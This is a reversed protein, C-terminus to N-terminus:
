IERRSAVDLTGEAQTLLRDFEPNSYKSENWPGGSRYALALSMIGLPRHAWTTFGFPVKTWVEWYQTSPMVNIKVRIGAEKWQEVMAQVALLEWGPQPRCVIETDIGNPHGAEALLRRAKAVDRQFPVLKAYKPHVPSVHHHQGPREGGGGPRRRPRHVRDSGPVAWRGLVTGQPGQPGPTKGGREGGAHLRRHRELRSQVRRERGSRPDPASLPLAARPHGTTADQRQAPRHLRRGEPHRQRGVAAHIEQRQGQRGERGDRVGRPPLGEHARRGLLGDQPRARALPEVRGRGRQGAPRQAVQRQPAAEADLDQPRPEG